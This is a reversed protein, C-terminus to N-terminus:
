TTRRTFSSLGGGGLAKVVKEVFPVASIGPGFEKLLAIEELLTWLKSEYEVLGRGCDLEPSAEREEGNEWVQL